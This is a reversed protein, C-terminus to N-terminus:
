RRAMARQWMEQDVPSLYDYGSNSAQQQPNGSGYQGSGGGSGYQGQLSAPSPGGGGSFGASGPQMRSPLLRPDTAMGPIMGATLGTPRMAAGRLTMDYQDQAKIAALPDPRAQNEVGTTRQRNGRNTSGGLQIANNSPANYPNMRRRVLEKIMQSVEDDGGM